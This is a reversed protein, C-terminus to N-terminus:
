ELLTQSQPNMRCGGWYEDALRNICHPNEEGTNEGSGSSGSYGRPSMKPIADVAGDAAEVKSLRKM